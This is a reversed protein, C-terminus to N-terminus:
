ENIYTIDIIENNKYQIIFASPKEIKGELITKNNFTIKRIKDKENTVKIDCVNLLYSCISTAHSVVVDIEDENMKELIDQICLSMRKKVENLSEGNYNKYDHDEYQMKWQKKDATKSDGILREILREDSIMQNSLVQATQYARLYTSCYITHIKNFIPHQFFEKAKDIGELSLPIKENVKISKDPLSHRVFVITKM